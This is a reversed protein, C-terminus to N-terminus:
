NEFVEDLSENEKQRFDCFKSILTTKLNKKQKEFM